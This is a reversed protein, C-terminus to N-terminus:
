AAQAALPSEGGHVGDRQCGEDEDDQHCAAKGVQMEAAM